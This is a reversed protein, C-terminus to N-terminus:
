DGRRDASNGSPVGDHLFFQDDGLGIVVPNLTRGATPEPVLIVGVRSFNDCYARAIAVGGVFFATSLADAEAATPAVVTVSLMGEAPWGSRPDVIHGFRRGDIRFYQISSGSTSMAQDRLLLTALRRTRSLPDVIGVPWGGQGAHEGRALISSRGGHILVDSLGEEALFEACKDLAFGKGIGGLNLEVGERGYRMKLTREDLEVHEIGVVSRADDLEAESPVRQEVRCDRWLQILPGSTPDFAGKTERAIRRAEVLVDVLEEDLVVSGDAATRNAIALDADDRYVTMKQELPELLSLADGATMVQRPPGPNMVVAFDTAMARVSM